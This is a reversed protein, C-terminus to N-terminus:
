LWVGAWLGLDILVALVSSVLVWAMYLVYLKTALDDRNAVHFDADAAMCYRALFGDFILALLIM